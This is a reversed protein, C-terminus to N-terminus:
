SRRAQAKLSDPNIKLELDCIRKFLEEGDNFWRGRIWYRGQLFTDGDMRVYMRLDAPYERVRMDNLDALQYTVTSGYCSFSISKSTITVSSSYSKSIFTKFAGYLSVLCVVVMLGAPWNWRVILIISMIALVICIIGQITVEWTFRGPNYMYTKSDEHSGDASEVLQSAIDERVKTNSVDVAKRKGAMLRGIYFPSRM